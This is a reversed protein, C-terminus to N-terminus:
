GASRDRERLQPNDFLPHRWRHLAERLAGALDRKEAEGLHQAVERRLGRSALYLAPVRGQREELVVQLWAPPLAREERRGRRDTRVIRLTEPTLVILESERIARANHLLMLTALLVEAGSFGLIPWAGLLWFVLATAASLLGIAGILIRLGRRSLSRHPVIVAEFLTEQAAGSM